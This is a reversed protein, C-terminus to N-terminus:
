PKRELTERALRRFAAPLNPIDGPFTGIEHLVDRWKGFHARALAALGIRPESVCYADAFAEFPDPPAPPARLQAAEHRLLARLDSGAKCLELNLRYPGLKEVIEAARDLVAADTLAPPPTPASVGLSANSDEAAEPQEQEESASPAPQAFARIAKVANEVAYHGDVIREAEELAERALRMALQRCAFPTYGYESRTRIEPILELARAELNV